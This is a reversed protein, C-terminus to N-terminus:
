GHAKIAAVISESTQTLMLSVPRFIKLRAKLVGNKGKVKAIKAVEEIDGILMSTKKVIEQPVGFSISIAQEM